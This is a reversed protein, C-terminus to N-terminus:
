PEALLAVMDKAFLEYSHWGLLSLIDKALSRRTGSLDLTDLKLEKHLLDICGKTGNRLNGEEFHLAQNRANCIVASLAQSGLLRGKRQRVAPEPWAMAICQQAIQLVAGCAAASAANILLLEEKAEAAQSAHHRKKDDDGATESDYELQHCHYEHKAWYLLHEQSAKRESALIAEFLAIVIPEVKGLYEVPKM